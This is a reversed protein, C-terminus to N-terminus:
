YHFICVQVIVRHPGLKTRAWHFSDALEQSFVLIKGYITRLFFEIHCEVGIAIKDFDPSQNVLSVIGEITWIRNTLGAAM